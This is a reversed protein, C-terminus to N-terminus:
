AADKALSLEAWDLLPSVDGRGVHRSLVACPEGDDEHEYIGM